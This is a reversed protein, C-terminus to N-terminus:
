SRAGRAFLAHALGTYSPEQELPPLGSVADGALPRRSRFDYTVVRKAFRWRGDAERRYNDVYRVCMFDELWGGQGDPISHYALAYVEGEGEDGAV